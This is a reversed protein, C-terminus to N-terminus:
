IKIEAQNNGAGRQEPAEPIQAPIKGLSPFLSIFGADNKSYFHHRIFLRFFRISIFL